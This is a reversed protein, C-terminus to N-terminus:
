IPNKTTNCRSALCDPAVGLEVRQGLLHRTRCRRDDGVGRVGHMPCDADAGLIIKLEVRTAQM